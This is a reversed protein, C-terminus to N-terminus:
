LRVEAIMKELNLSAIQLKSSEPIDAHLLCLMAAEPTSDPFGSGFVLRGAGYDKAVGELSGDSSFLDGSDLFVNRYNELLPRFYRDCGWAGMNGIILHLDPYEGLINYIEAWGNEEPMVAFLVPIKKEVIRDMFGGFVIKRLLYRNRSPFVRLAYIRENKMKEFFADEGPLEGTQPPLLTWCGFLREKGSIASSLRTNGDAPSYDYQSVHWVLAKAIGAGDMYQLLEDSSMAPKYSGTNRRGIFTNADFFEIGM